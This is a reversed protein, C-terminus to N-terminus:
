RRVSVARFFKEPEGTHDFGITFPSTTLTGNAVADWDQADAAGEIVFDQGIMGRLTLEIEVGDTWISLLEIPSVPQPDGGQIRLWALRDQSFGNIQTFAGGAVAHEGQILLSLVTDNAGSGIAFSPDLAGQPLLRVLRNREVGAYQTFSGGALIKGDAQLALAEVINNFGDGIVFGPDVAGGPMLRVLRNFAMGDFQSFSGGLLIRGDTQVAIAAIDSNPGVGPDFSLDAVGNAL